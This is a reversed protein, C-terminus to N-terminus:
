DGCWHAGPVCGEGSGSLRCPFLVPLVWCGTVGSHDVAMGVILLRASCVALIEERDPLQPMSHLCSSRAGDFSHAATVDFPPAWSERAHSM